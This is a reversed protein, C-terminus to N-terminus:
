LFIDTKSAKLCFIPFPCMGYLSTLGFPSFYVFSKGQEVADIPEDMISNIQTSDSSHVPLVSSTGEVPAVLDILVGETSSM